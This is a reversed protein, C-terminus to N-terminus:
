YNGDEIKSIVNTLAARYGRTFGDKETEIYNWWVGARHMDDSRWKRLMDRLDALRDREDKKVRNKM